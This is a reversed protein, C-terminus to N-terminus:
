PTKTGNKLALVDSKKIRHKGGVKYQISKLIGMSIYRLVQQRAVELIKAAEPTKIYEEDNM